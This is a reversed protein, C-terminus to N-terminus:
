PLDNLRALQELIRERWLDAVTTEDEAANVGAVSQTMTQQAADADQDRGAARAAAIRERLVALYTWDRTGRWFAQWGRTPVPGDAGFYYHAYVGDRPSLQDYMDWYFGFGSYGKAWTVWPQMRYYSYPLVTGLSGSCRYTWIERGSDKLVQEAAPTLGPLVVMIELIRSLSTLREPTGVSISSMAPWDPAIEKLVEYAAASVQEKDRDPEDMMEFPFQGPTLGLQRLAELCRLAERAVARQTLAGSQPVGQPVPRVAQPAHPVPPTTGTRSCGTVHVALLAPLLVTAIRAPPTRL